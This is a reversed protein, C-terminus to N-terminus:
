EYDHTTPIEEIKELVEIGIITIEKQLVEDKSSWSDAKLYYARSRNLNGKMTCREDRKPFKIAVHYTSVVVWFTNLLPREFIANYTTVVDVIIFDTMATFQKNGDGWTIPQTILGEIERRSGLFGYLLGGIHFLKLNTMGFKCFVLKFIINVSSGTDILFSRVQYNVILATIVVADNYPNSMLPRDNELYSIPTIPPPARVFATSNVEKPWLRQLSM